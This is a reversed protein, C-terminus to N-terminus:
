KGTEGRKRLLDVLPGAREPVHHEHAYALATQSMGSWREPDAALTAIADHLGDPGGTVVGAGGRSLCGDPDVFCSVVPVGRMWSQIFTNAFGETPSTNVFVHSRAIQRNVEDIPLEGLYRLNTLRKMREHLGGYLDPNGPRGIMVFEMDDRDSFSEALQVFLEPRKSPKFNAVWIARFTRDTRGGESADPRPHFNPVVATAALGYNQQLLRAQDATQTVIVDARRMGYEALSRELRRVLAEPSWRRFRVRSVDDDHAVHFVFRAGTYRCFLACVGTYAKLGRQYVVDPKLRALARFLPILDPLFREGGLVGASGIRIVVCRDDATKEPVLRALYYVAFGGHAYVADVLCRAQYQAGGMQVTWHSGMVIALRIPSSVSPGKVAEGTVSM